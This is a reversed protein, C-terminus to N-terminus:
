AARALRALTDRTFELVQVVQERAVAPFNELFDDVTRGAAPNDLFAAVPVRTGRFVPAGGPIEPDSTIPLRAVQEAGFALLAAVGPRRVNVPEGWAADDDAQASVIEDIEAESLTRKKGSM